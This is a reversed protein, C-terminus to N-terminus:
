SHVQCGASYLMFSISTTDININITTRVPNEVYWWDDMISPVTTDYIHQIRTQKLSCSVFSYFFHSFGSVAAATAFFSIRFFMQKRIKINRVERATIAQTHAFDHTCRTYYCYYLFYWMLCFFRVPHTRVLYIKREKNPINMNRRSRAIPCNSKKHVAYLCYSKCHVATTYWTFCVLLWVISNM